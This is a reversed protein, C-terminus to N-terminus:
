PASFASGLGPASSFASGEDFFWMVDSGFLQVFSIPKNNNDLMTINYSPLGLSDGPRIDWFTTSIKATASYWPDAIYNALTTLANNVYPREVIWEASHGVVCSGGISSADFTAAVLWHQTIDVFFLNGTSSQGNSWNTAWVYVIIYDGPYFPLTCNNPGYIVVQDGPLWEIFPLYLASQEPQSGPVCDAAEISGAQFLLPDNFGDIGVWQSAFDLGGSCTCFAQQVSPVIWSGGALYFYGPKFIWPFPTSNSVAYGSWDQSTAYTSNTIKLGSAPRHYRNTQSLNFVVRKLAPNVAAQWKALDQASANPGPSPPYGYMQLEAASATLPNFGAPPQTYAFVGPINTEVMAPTLSQAYAMSSMLLLGMASVLALVPLAKRKLLKFNRQNM